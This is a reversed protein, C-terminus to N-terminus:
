HKYFYKELQKILYDKNEEFQRKRHGNAGSPHPFGFLVTHKKIRGQHLLTRVTSEVVRGFPVLIVPHPLQNLEAAFHEYAYHQLLPSRDIKPQHGTYNKDRYFVPHRLISTMHLLEQHTHFLAATSPIELLQNLGLEDLMVTLNRRMPGAFSASYKIIKSTEEITAGHHFADAAEEYAIRMQEFGPTIGIFVIKASRNIYEGIPSYYVSLEHDQQLLFSDVCLDQRTLSRDIPLDRIVREFISLSNLM